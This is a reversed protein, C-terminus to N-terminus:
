ANAAVHALIRKCFPVLLRMDSPPHVRWVPVNTAIQSLVKFERRLIMRDRPYHSYGNATLEILAERPAIREFDSHGEYTRRDGLVFVAGLPLPQNQFARGDGFLKMHRKDWSPSIPPLLDRDGMLADVSEPWLRLRAYGPRVQFNGHAEDLAVIDDTVIPVGQLAFAAALTSKGSGAPGLFAAVRRDAAVASAHLCVAGKLSLVLGMVPGLLYTAMDSATYETPWGTAIRWAGSDLQFWTGDAYELHHLTANTHTWVSLPRPQSLSSSPGNDQVPAILDDSHRHGGYEIVLDPLGVVPVSELADLLIRSELTLGFATYRTLVSRHM